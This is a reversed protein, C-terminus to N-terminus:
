YDTSKKPNGLIGSQNGLAWIWKWCSVVAFDSKMRKRDKKKFDLMECKRFSLICRGFIVLFEGYHVSSGHGDRKCNM